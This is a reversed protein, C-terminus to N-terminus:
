WARRRSRTQTRAANTIKAGLKGGDSTNCKAHSPGLNDLTDPGGRSKDIIHGVHWTQGPYVVGGLQCVNVCPAPLTREIIPRAKRLAYATKSGHSM